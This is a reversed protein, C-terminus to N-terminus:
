RDIEKVIKIAKESSLINRIAWELVINEVEKASNWIDVQSNNKEIYLIFGSLNNENKYEDSIILEIVRLYDVMQNPTFEGKRFRLKIRNQSRTQWENIYSELCFDIDCNSIKILGNTNLYKTEQFTRILEITSVEEWELNQYEKKESKFQFNYNKGVLKSNIVKRLTNEKRFIRKLAEIIPIQYTVPKSDVPHFKDNRTILEFGNVSIDNEVYIDIFNKIEVSIRNLFRNAEENESYMKIVNSSTPKIILEFNSYLGQFHALLVKEIYVESFSIKNGFELDTRLEIM